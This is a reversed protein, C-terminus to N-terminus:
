GFIKGREDRGGKWVLCCEKNESSGDKNGFVHVSDGVKFLPVHEPSLFSLGDGEKAMNSQSDDKHVITGRVKGLM